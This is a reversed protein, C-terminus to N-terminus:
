LWAVLRDIILVDWFVNDESVLSSFVELCIERSADLVFYFCLLDCYLNCTDFEGKWQDSSLQQKREKFFLPSVRLIQMNQVAM